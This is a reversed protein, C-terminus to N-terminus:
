GWDSVDTGWDFHTSMLMDGYLVGFLVELLPVKKKKKIFSM